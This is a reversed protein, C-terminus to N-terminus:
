HGDFFGLEFGCAFALTLLLVLAAAATLPVRV